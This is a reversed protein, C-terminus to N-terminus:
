ECFAGYRQLLFSLGPLAAINEGFGMKIARQYFLNIEMPSLISLERETRDTACLISQMVPRFSRRHLPCPGYALLAQLHAATGYGVHREFGYLPYDTSANIMWQDRTEKALISAAMICPERQDGRILAKYPVGLDDLKMADSLIFQPQTPLSHIAMCMAKKSAQYINLEDIEAASVFATAAPHEMITRLLAARRRASLKKSDNLGVIQANRDFVVCAATVPGALPGRGVEDVGGVTTYSLLCHSQEVGIESAFKNRM